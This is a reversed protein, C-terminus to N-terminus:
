GAETKVVVGVVFNSVKNMVLKLSQRDGKGVDEADTALRTQLVATDLTRYKTHTVTEKYVTPRMKESSRELKTSSCVGSWAVALTDQDTSSMLVSDAVCICCRM